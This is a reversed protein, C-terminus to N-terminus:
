YPNKIEKKIRVEKIEVRELINLVEM